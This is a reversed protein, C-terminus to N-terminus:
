FRSTKYCYLMEFKFILVESLIILHVKDLTNMQKLLKEFLIPIM